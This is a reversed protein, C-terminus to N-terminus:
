KLSPADSEMFARISAYDHHLARSSYTKPVKKLSCHKGDGPEGAMLPRKQSCETRSESNKVGYFANIARQQDKSRFLFPDYWTFMIYKFVKEGKRLDPNGMVGLVTGEAKNKDIVPQDYTLKDSLFAGKEGKIFNGSKKPDPQLIEPNLVADYPQYTCFDHIEPYFMERETKTREDLKKVAGRAINSFCGRVNPVVQAYSPHWCYFHCVIDSYYSPCAQLCQKPENANWPTKVYGPPMSNSYFRERVFKWANLV